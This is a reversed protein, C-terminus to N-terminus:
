NVSSDSKDRSFWLCVKAILYSPHIITLRTLFKAIKSGSIVKALGPSIIYYLNEALKGLTSRLLIEDRFEKLAEVEVADPTGYIATALFCGKIQSKGAPSPVALTDLNSQASQKKKVYDDHFLNDPWEEAEITRRYWKIAASTDGSHIFLAGIEFCVDPLVSVDLYELMKMKMLLYSRANEHGNKKELYESQMLWLLGLTSLHISRNLREGFFGKVKQFDLSLSKEKEQLSKFANPFTDLGEKLIQEETFEGMRQAKQFYLQGLWARCEIQGKDVLGLCLAEEFLHIARECGELWAPNSIDPDTLNALIVIGEKYLEEAHSKGSNVQNM